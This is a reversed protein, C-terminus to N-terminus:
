ESGCVCRLYEKKRKACTNTPLYKEKGVRAQRWHRDVKTSGVHPFICFLCLSLFLFRVSFLCSSPRSFLCHLSLFPVEIHKPSMNPQNHSWPFFNSHVHWQRKNKRQENTLRPPCPVHSMCSPTNKKQKPSASFVCLIDNWSGSEETRQFSFIFLFFFFGSSGM